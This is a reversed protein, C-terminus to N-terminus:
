DNDREQEVTPWTAIEQWFANYADPIFRLTNTIDTMKKQSIALKEPYAQTTPFALNKETNRLRFTDTLLGNILERCVVESPSSITIQHFSAIAFSKKQSRPVRKGYSENSLCTKKYFRSWWSKFDYIMDRSVEVISFKQPNKSAASIIQIYEPVTYFREARNLQRKILGFDRDCPMFSHGRIPFFIEVKEFIKLEILSMVFRIMTNNKNQGCCNDGFIYLKKIKREADQEFYHKLFSCVDNAGKGAEGEHYVYCTMAKSKLNHIGFTCVTLQRYYYIDQVPIQPLSVNAMYDICIGLTDDNQECMKKVSDLTTYFKKSRRKHVLLEAVAVRKANDNLTESKIKANLEECTSCTDKAPRGFRLDYNEKFYSWFFKYSIRDNPFKEKFMEYMTKVSLKSDLYRMEKNTYHSIKVPYSEIHSRINAIVTGKIANGSVNKGRMDKPSKNNKLLLVLRECRKKTVGHISLYAQKCVGIRHNGNLVFYKVTLSKPKTNVMGIKGRRRSVPQTELLRQLHLDQQDKTDMNCFLQQMNLKENDTFKTLCKQHCSCFFEFSAIMLSLKSLLLKGNM